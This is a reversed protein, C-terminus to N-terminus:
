IRDPRFRKRSRIAESTETIRSVQANSQNATIRKVSEDDGGSFQVFQRNHRRVFM